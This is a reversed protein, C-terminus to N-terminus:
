AAPRRAKLSEIRQRLESMRQEFNSEHLGVARQAALLLAGGLAAFGVMGLGTLERSFLSLYALAVASVVAAQFVRWGGVRTKYLAIVEEKRLMIKALDLESDPDV